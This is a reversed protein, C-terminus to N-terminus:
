YETDWNRHSDFNQLFKYAIISTTKSKLKIGLLREQYNKFFTLEYSGEFIKNYCKLSLKLKQNDFSLNWENNSNEDEASYDYIEPISFGKEHFMLYNVILDDKCDKGNNTMDHIAWQGILKKSALEERTECSNFLVVLLILYIYKFM